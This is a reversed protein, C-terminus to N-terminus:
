LMSFIIPFLIEIIFYLVTQYFKTCSCVRKIDNVIDLKILGKLALNKNRFELISGM